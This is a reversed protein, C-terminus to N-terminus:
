LLSAAIAPAVLSVLVSLVAMTGLAFGAGAAAKPKGAGSLGIGGAILAVLAVIVTVGSGILNFRLSVEAATLDYTTMLQPLMVGIVQQVLGSLVLVIGAALALRGAPNRGSGGDPRYAAAAYGSHHPDPGFGTRM